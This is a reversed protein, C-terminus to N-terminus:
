SLSFYEINLSFCLQWVTLLEIELLKVINIVFLIAISQFKELYFTRFSDEELNLSIFTRAARFRAWHSAEYFVSIEKCIFGM